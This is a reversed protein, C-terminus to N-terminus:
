DADDDGNERGLCYTVVWTSTGLIAAVVYMLPELWDPFPVGGTARSVFVTSNVILVLGVGIFLYILARGLVLHAVTWLRTLAAAAGVLGIIYFLFRIGAGPTMDAM